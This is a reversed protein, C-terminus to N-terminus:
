SPAGEDPPVTALRTAVALIRDPRGPPDSAFAVILLGGGPRNALHQGVLARATDQLSAPPMAVVKPTQDVTTLITTSQGDDRLTAHVAFVVRDGFAAPPRARWPLALDQHARAALDCALDMPHEDLHATVVAV